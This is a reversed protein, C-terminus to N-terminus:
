QSIFTSSVQCIHGLCLLNNFMFVIQVKLSNSIFLWLFHSQLWFLKMMLIFLYRKVSCLTTRWEYPGSLCDEGFIILWTAHNKMVFQYYWFIMKLTKHSEVSVTRRFISSSSKTSHGLLYLSWTIGMSTSKTDWIM